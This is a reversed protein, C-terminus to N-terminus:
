LSSSKYIEKGSKITRLVQIDKIKMPDVKLPNADLVVMDALKGAELTGKIAEDRYQYAGYSTLAQLGVYPSVREQPGVVVGNKSVRNVSSWLVFLQSIPTVPADNHNAFKLGKQKASKMPSLFSARKQGLNALHIDGWFYTHNTFFTPYFNFKKYSNLQDPRMVQSHVIVTRREIGPTKLQKEAFQHGKIMMDTSADGNCHAYIQVKNKYAKIFVQNVEDQTMNPFGHCHGTCGPVPTLYDETLFATKGQPSGDLAIKLGAYKLGGNYEQWKVKGTGLVQDAMLYFPLGVIDISLLNNKAAYDLVEMKEPTVLAENATTVGVKAYDMMAQKLLSMEKTMARKTIVMPLFPVMATEQILGEPEKSGPKRVITGGSPDPTQASINAAKLALSNAVLMHGSVHRLIVPNKPFVADLEAATPHRKEKLFEPDYGSGIIVQDDQINLRKQLAKLERIIDPISEVKGVPPPSLEAQELADAYQTIHGHGDIFGPILTKGQLNILKTTSTKLTLVKEKNGVSAIKGQDVALAEVYEPSEGRMTLIDGGFYIADVAWASSATTGVLSLVVAQIFTKKM